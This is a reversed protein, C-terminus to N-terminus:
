REIDVPTRTGQVGCAERALARLRKDSLRERRSPLAGSETNRDGEYCQYAWGHDGPVQKDWYVSVRKKTEM